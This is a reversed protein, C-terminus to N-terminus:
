HRHEERVVVEKKVSDQVNVRVECKDGTRTVQVTGGSIAITTDGQFGSKKLEHVIAEAEVGAASSGHESHGHGGKCCAKGHSEMMAAHECGAKECHGGPKCCSGGHVCNGDKDCCSMERHCGARDRGCAGSCSRGIFYGAIGFLLGFVLIKSWNTNM